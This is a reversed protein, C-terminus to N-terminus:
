NDFLFVPDRDFGVTMTIRPAIFNHPVVVCHAEQVRILTAKKIEVGDMFEYDTNTAIHYTINNNPNTIKKFVVNKYFNTLTNKCNLIPFNIRASLSDNDKHLHHTTNYYVVYLHVRTPVLGDYKLFATKLEPVYKIYENFSINHWNNTTPIELLNTKEKIFNLTNSIISDYNDVDLEKYYQM